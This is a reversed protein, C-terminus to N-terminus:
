FWGVAILLGLCEGLEATAGLIDGTVGGLQHRWLKLGALAALTVSLFVILGSLGLALASILVTTGGALLLEKKGALDTFPRGLGGERRAYTSLCATLSVAWRGWVPFVLVAARIEHGILDALLVAKLGLIFFLAAAGFVGVASDKMIRLKGERDRHSLLGDATDALGDLHLGQTFVALALVLLLGLVMNPLFYDLYTLITLLTGLVLGIVPYLGVSRAMDEGTEALDNKFRFVTMFQLAILFLRPM